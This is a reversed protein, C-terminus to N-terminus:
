YLLNITMGPKVRGDLSHRQSQTSGSVNHNETSQFVPFVTSYPSVQM